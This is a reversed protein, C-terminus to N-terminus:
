RWIKLIAEDFETGCEPCRPERQGRLDYGCKRCKPRGASGIRVCREIFAGLEEDIDATPLILFQRKGVFLLWMDPFKWFREFARWKLESSGLESSVFIGLHSFRYTIHHDEIKRRPHMSMRMHACYSLVPLAIAFAAMAAARLMSSGPREVLSASSILWIAVGVGLLLLYRGYSRFWFRRLARKFQSDSLEIRIEREADM